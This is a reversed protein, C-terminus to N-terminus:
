MQVEEQEHARQRRHRRDVGGEQAVSRADAAANDRGRAGGVGACTRCLTTVCWCVLAEM